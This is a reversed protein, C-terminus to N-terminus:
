STKAVKDTIITSEHNPVVVVFGYSAVTEAFGRYFSKDVNAGQLLLAFPFARNGRNLELYDPFYIDTSDNNTPINVYYNSINLYLPEEPSRKTKSSGNQAQKGSVSVISEM